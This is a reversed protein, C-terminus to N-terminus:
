YRRKELGEIKSRAEREAEQKEKDIAKEKEKADAMIKDGKEQYEKAAKMNGKSYAESQKDYYAGAKKCAENNIEKKEKEAVEHGKGYEKDGAEQYSAKTREDPAINAAEYYKGANAYHEKMSDVSMREEESM